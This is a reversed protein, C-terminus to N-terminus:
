SQISNQMKKPSDDWKESNKRDLIAAEEKILLLRKEMIAASGRENILKEVLDVLGM